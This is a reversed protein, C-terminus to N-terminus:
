EILQFAIRSRELALGLQLGISSLNELSIKNYPKIQRSGLNLLGTIKDGYKIPLILMTKIDNEKIPTELLEYDESEANIYVLNQNELTKSFLDKFMGDMCMKRLKDPLNQHVRLALEQNEDSLYICGMEFGLSEITVRVSEELMVDEKDEPYSNIIESVKNMALLTNIFEEKEQKLRSMNIFSAFEDAAIEVSEMSVSTIYKATTLLVLSGLANDDDIIPISIMLGLEHDELESKLIKLPIDESEASKTELDVMSEQAFDRIIAGIDKNYKHSLEPSIYDFLLNGGEKLVIVLYKSPILQQVGKILEVVLDQRTEASAAWRAIGLLIELDRKSRKISSLESGIFSTGMVENSKNLIPQLVFTYPRKVGQKEMLDLEMTISDKSDVSKLANELGVIQQLDLLERLNKATFFANFSDNTAVVDWFSNITFIITEPHDISKRLASEQSILSHLQSAQHALDNFILDNTEQITIKSSDKRIEQNESGGAMSWLKSRGVFKYEIIGKAHLIELYKLVTARSRSTGKTIKDLMCEEPPHSQIYTLILRETNSLEEM